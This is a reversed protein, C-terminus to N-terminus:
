TKEISGTKAYVAPAANHRGSVGRAIRDLDGRRWLQYLYRGANGRTTIRDFTIADFCRGAPMAAVAAALAGYRRGTKGTSPAYPQTVRAGKKM